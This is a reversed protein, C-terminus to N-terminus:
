RRSFYERFNTQEIFKEVVEVLDERIPISDTIAKVMKLRSKGIEDFYVDTESVVAIRDVIRDGMKQIRTGEHNDKRYNFSRAAGESEKILLIKALHDNIERMFFLVVYNIQKPALPINKWRFKIVKERINSFDVDMERYITLCHNLMESLKELPFDLSAMDIEVEGGLEVVPGDDDKAPNQIPSVPAPKHGNAPAYIKDSNRRPPPTGEKIAAM